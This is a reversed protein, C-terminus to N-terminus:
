GLGDEYARDVLCFPALLEALPDWGPPGFGLHLRRRWGEALEFRGSMRGVARSMAEMENLYADLGQSADLWEKQSRHQSLMRRKTDHVGSVDVYLGARVTSRLPDRLGNPMAHYVAVDGSWPGAPPDTAFNRMGRVFAATVALRAANQHDEMYDDPSPVLLITPKVQRIGAAVRALLRPEYFLALDDALPEHIQAGALGASDRAERGRIRIVEERDYVTTGCSGNALNWMHIEAGAKKLLLLTGAMLFEIDDPHAGVAM